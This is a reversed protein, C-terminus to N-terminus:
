HNTPPSHVVATGDGQLDELVAIAQLWAIACAGIAANFCVLDAQIFIQEKPDAISPM